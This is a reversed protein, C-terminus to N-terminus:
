RPLLGKAGMICVIGALGLLVVATLNMVTSCGPSLVGQAVNGAVAFICATLCLIAFVILDHGNM